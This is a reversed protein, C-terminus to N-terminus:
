MDVIPKHQKNIKYLYLYVNNSLILSSISRWFVLQLEANFDDTHVMLTM